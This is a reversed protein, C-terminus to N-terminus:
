YGLVCWDVAAGVANATPTLASRWVKVTTTVGTTSQSCTQADGTPDQALTCWARVVANSLGHTAAGLALTGTVTSRGCVQTMGPTPYGLVRGTFAGTQGNILLKQTVQDDSYMVLNAGNRLVVDESALISIRERVADASVVLAAAAVAAAVVAVALRLKSNM